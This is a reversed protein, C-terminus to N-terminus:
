GGSNKKINRGLSDADLWILSPYRYLNRKYVNYNLNNNM